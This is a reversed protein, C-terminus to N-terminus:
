NGRVIKRQCLINTASFYARTFKIRHHLKMTLPSRALYYLCDKSHTFVFENGFNRQCIIKSFSVNDM